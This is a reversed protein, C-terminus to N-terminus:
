KEGRKKFREHKHELEHCDFCLSEHNEPENNLQNRDVHHVIVAAVVRPLCRECLPDQDLKQKRIKRWLRSQIFRRGPDDKRAQDYRREEQKTHAACFREHTLNGCMPKKCPRLPKKPM